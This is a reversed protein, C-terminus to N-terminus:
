LPRKCCGCVATNTTIRKVGAGLNEVRFPRHVRALAAILWKIAPGATLVEDIDNTQDIRRQMQDVWKPNLTRM